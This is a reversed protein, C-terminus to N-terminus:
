WGLIIVVKVRAFKLKKGQLPSDKVCRVKSDVRIVIGQCVDHACALHLLGCIPQSSDSKLNSM